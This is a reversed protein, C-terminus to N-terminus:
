FMFYVFQAKSSSFVVVIYVVLAAVLGQLVVSLRRLYDILGVRVPDYAWHLLAALVLAGMGVLSFPADSPGWDTMAQLYQGASALDPARFLLRTLSVFNFVFAIQAFAHWGGREDHAPLGRAVRRARRFREYCVMMGHLAGYLLFNWGGGHWLGIALFTLMLNLYVHGYRSGGLSVFVYDRFFSSMSIHWRQWFNSVTRACYPRDFNAPLRFGCMLAAGRAIDTYGSVDMYIQFSYAYLVVLLYLPSYGEPNAFVPDVMQAGLVDAFVVKKVFGLTVLWMGTEVEPAPVVQQRTLQPLLFSARTIPGALVTPFFGVFLAFDRVNRTPEQERRYIDLVYSLAQFTYFSIGVPMVVSLWAPQAEFGLPKLLEAASQIFFNAYKFYALGGLGALLSLALWARRWGQREEGGLKLGVAYHVLTTAALLGGFRWDWSMYFYYSALLLLNKRAGFHRWLLGCAVVLVALFLLFHISQFNM